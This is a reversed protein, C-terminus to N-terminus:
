LPDILGALFRLIMAADAASLTNDYTVEANLAGQPTLTALDALVRLVLAADEATV